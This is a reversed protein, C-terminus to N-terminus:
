DADITTCRRGLTRGIVYRLQGPSLDGARVYYQCNDDWQRVVVEGGEREAYASCRGSPANVEVTVQHM